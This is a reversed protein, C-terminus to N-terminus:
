AEAPSYLKSILDKPIREVVKRGMLQLVFLREQNVFGMKHYNALSVSNDVDVMNVARMLGQDRAFELRRRIGAGQLGKGRFQPATRTRHLYAWGPGLSLRIPHSSIRDFTLWGIHAPEGDVTGLMCISGEELMRKGNRKRYETYQIQEATLSDIDAATALKWEVDVRANGGEIPDHLSRDLVQARKLSIIRNNLLEPVHEAIWRAIM